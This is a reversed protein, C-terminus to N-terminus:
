GCRTSFCNKFYKKPCSDNRGRNPFYVVLEQVHILDEPRKSKGGAVVGKPMPCCPTSVDTAIDPSAVTM